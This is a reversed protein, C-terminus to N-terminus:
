GVMLIAGICQNAAGVVDAITGVGEMGRIDAKGKLRLNEIQVGMAVWAERKAVINDAVLQATQAFTVAEGHVFPYPAADAPYGDAIYRLADEYKALYTEAQGSVATIHRSRVVGAIEDIRRCCLDIAEKVAVFESSDIYSM